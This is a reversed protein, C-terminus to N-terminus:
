LRTSGGGRRGSRVKMKWHLGLVILLGLLGALITLAYNRFVALGEPFESGRIHSVVWVVVAVLALVLLVGEAVLAVKEATGLRGKDFERM